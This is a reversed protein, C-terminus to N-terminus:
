ASFIDIFQGTMVKPAHAALYLAAQAIQEATIWAPNGHSDYRRAM